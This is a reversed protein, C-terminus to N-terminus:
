KTELFKTILNKIETTIDTDYKINSAIIKSLKSKKFEGLHRTRYFEEINQCMKEHLRLEDATLPSAPQYENNLARKLLNTSLIDEFEGDNIIIIEDKKLLNEKLLECIEKADSDFLLIIPVKVKDRLKMYLSPSKSKGGAGLIYIGNEKFSKDLKDAFVPLLIEETIGEVIVLKEIPFLLKHKKRESKIDDAISMKSTKILFKINIPATSYDIMNLVSDIALPTNILTKTREDINKFTSTVLIKLINNQKEQKGFIKEVSKNWIEKVIRSIDKAPLNEIDSKSYKPTILCKLIISTFVRTYTEDPLKFRSLRDISIILEQLSLYKYKLSACKM